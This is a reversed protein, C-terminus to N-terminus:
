SKPPRQGFLATGIRVMTAGEAIAAEMDSTMGMSLQDLQIGQDQLSHLLERCRAFTARQRDFDTEPRPIAMLGRLRLNPLANIQLALEAAKEPNVGSKTEEDDINVQLLVNLPHTRHDNLKSAVKLSEITHVWDFNEAIQRCKRSQIHGIFHWILPSIASKQCHEIKELAEQLYNEAFDQQGYGALAIIKEVPHVKGVAVLKVSGAPRHYKECFSNIQANILELNQQLDLM